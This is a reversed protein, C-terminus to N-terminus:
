VSYAGVRSAWVETNPCALKHAAWRAAYQLRAVACGGLVVLRLGPPECLPLRLFVDVRATCM